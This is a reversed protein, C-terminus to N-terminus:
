FAVGEFSTSWYAVDASAGGHPPKGAGDPLRDAGGSLTLARERSGTVTGKEGEGANM